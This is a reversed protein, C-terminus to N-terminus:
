HKLHAIMAKFFKAGELASQSVVHGWKSNYGILYPVLAFALSGDVLVDAKPLDNDVMYRVLSDVITSKDERTLMWNLPDLNDSKPM